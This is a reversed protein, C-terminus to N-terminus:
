LGGWGRGGCVVRMTDDREDEMSFSVGFIMMGFGKNIPSLGM